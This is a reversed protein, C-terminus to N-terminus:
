LLQGLRKKWIAFYESLGIHDNILEIEVGYIAIPKEKDYNLVNIYFSQDVPVKKFVETVQKFDGSVNAIKESELLREAGSKSSVEVNYGNSDEYTLVVKAHDFRRPLNIKFYADSAMLENGRVFTAPRITTFYPTPKDFATYINLHKSIVADIFLLVFSCIILIISIWFIRKKILKRIEM